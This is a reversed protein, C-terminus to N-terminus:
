KNTRTVSLRGTPVAMLSSGRGGQEGEGVGKAPTSRLEKKQGSIGSPNVYGGGM